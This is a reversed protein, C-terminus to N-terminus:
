AHLEKRKIWRAGEPTILLVDIPGGVTKLRAQFRITDITTKVAYVAFDIADQIPMADWIIPPKQVQVFKGTKDRTWAPQLIEAIIDGEGGWSAGFLVKNLEQSYNLRKLESRRINCHYVFPISVKGNKRYGSIHFSTDANPFKRKFFNLLKNAVSEVDDRESLNEEEFEKLHFDMPVKGLLSEGFTSIGVNLGSLLHTKYVYDSSVTQIPPYERGTNDKRQITISQRSDSAMVIGSPVYVTIVFSM